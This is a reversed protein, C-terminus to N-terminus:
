TDVSTNRNSMGFKAFRDGYWHLADLGSCPAARAMALAPLYNARYGLEAVAFSVAVGKTYGAPARGRSPWNYRAIKHSGAIETIKAVDLSGADLSPREPSVVIPPLKHLATWNEDGVVGDVIMGLARQFVKVAVETTPGYDGDALMGLRKQLESVDAGSSGRHLPLEPM